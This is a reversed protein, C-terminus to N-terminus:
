PSVFIAVQLFFRSPLQTTNPGAESTVASVHTVTVFALPVDLRVRMAVVLRGNSTFPTGWTYPVGAGRSDEVPVLLWGRWDLPSYQASHPLWWPGKRVSGSLLPMM